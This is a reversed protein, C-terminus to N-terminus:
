GTGGPEGKGFNNIRGTEDGLSYKWCWMDPPQTVKHNNTGRLVKDRKKSLKCNLKAHVCALAHLLLGIDHEDIQNDGLKINRVLVYQM